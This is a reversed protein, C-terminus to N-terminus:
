AYRIDDILIWNVGPRGCSPQAAATMIPSVGATDVELKQMLPLNPITLPTVLEVYGERVENAGNSLSRAPGPALGLVNSVPDVIPQHFDRRYEGGIAASIPGAWTSFCTAACIAASISSTTATGFMLLHGKYYNLGSQSIRAPVSYTSRRVAMPPLKGPHLPLGATGGARRGCRGHAPNAVADVANFFNTQIRNNAAQNYYVSQTYTVHMDWGWGGLWSLTGQAGPM